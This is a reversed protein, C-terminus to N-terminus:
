ASIRRRGSSGSNNPYLLAYELLSHSQYQPAVPGQDKVVSYILVPLTSAHREAASFNVHKRRRAALISPKWGESTLELRVPRVLFHQTRRAALIMAQWTMSVPELGTGRVMRADLSYAGRLTKQRHLEPPKSCRVRLSFAADEFSAM